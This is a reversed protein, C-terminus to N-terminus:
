SITFFFSKGTFFGDGLTSSADKSGPIAAYLAAVSTADGLVLTTGTDIIASLSTAVAEGGVDVSDLAVQWFGQLASLYSLFLM